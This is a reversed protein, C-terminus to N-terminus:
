FCLAKLIAGLSSAQYAGDVWHKIWREEIQDVTGGLQLVHPAADCEASGQTAPLIARQSYQTRRAAAAHSYWM